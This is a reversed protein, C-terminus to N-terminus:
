RKKKSSGGKNAREQSKVMKKLYEFSNYFELVSLDKANITLKQSLMLCMDEFNKDYEIELSDTGSFVKPKFFMLLSNDIAEIESSLDKEEKIQRIQLLIRRKLYGFYEKESSDEFTNKFYLSLEQDMKKKLSEIIVDFRKQKINGLRNVVKQLGDDSIDLQKIGNIEAVLPAFALYKPSIEENILHISQKLNNLEMVASKRDDNRIFRLAKNIHNDVDNLDSGIGSDILMYKNYKHFRKIPLEDISDYVKITVGSEKIERM